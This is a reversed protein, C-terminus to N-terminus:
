EKTFIKKACEYGDNYLATLRKVSTEMRGVMLPKAPRIVVIKGEEELKEVLDLQQNYLKNRNRLAVRLRPYKKYVFSPVYLSKDKKRYGKNRTLV